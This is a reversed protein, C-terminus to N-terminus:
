SKDATKAVPVVVVPMSGYRVVQDATSGMLLGSFGGAGRSGVVLLRAGEAAKLLTASSTGHVVTCTVESPLGLKDVDVKLDELLATGFEEESPVHTGALSAPRPTSRLTWARVVELTAGLDGALASAWRVAEGAAASGDDGVVIRGTTPAPTDTSNETM